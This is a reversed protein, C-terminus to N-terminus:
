DFFKMLRAFFGRRRVNRSLHFDVNRLGFRDELLGIIEGIKRHARWWDDVAAKFEDCQFEYDGYTAKLEEMAEEAFQRCCTAAVQALILLLRTPHKPLPQLMVNWPNKRLDELELTRM